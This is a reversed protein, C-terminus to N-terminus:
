CDPVPAVSIKNPPRSQGYALAMISILLLAIAVGYLWYQLYLCVALGLWGLTSAAELYSLTHDRTAWRLTSLNQTTLALVDAHWTSMVAKSITMPLLMSVMLIAPGNSIAIAGVIPIFVGWIMLLIALLKSLRLKLNTTPASGLWRLDQSQAFCVHIFLKTTITATWLIFLGCLALWRDTLAFDPVYSLILIEAIIVSNLCVGITRFRTSRLLIRWEKLMVSRVIGSTFVQQRRSFPRQKTILPQQIVDIFLNPLLQCSAWALGCSLLTMTLIAKPDLLVTRAPFWLWSEKRWWLHEGTHQQWLQWLAQMEGNSDSM